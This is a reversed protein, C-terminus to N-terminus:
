IQKRQIFAYKSVMIDKLRGSAINGIPSFSPCLRISGDHQVFISSTDIECTRRIFPVSGNEDNLRFHKYIGMFNETDNLIPYNNKKMEILEGFVHKAKNRQTPKIWLKTKQLQELTQDSNYIPEIPQFYIGDLGLLAVWRVLSPLEEINLGMIVTKVIIKTKAHQRKKEEVLYKLANKTLQLADSRGRILEATKKTDGDLSININSFGKSIINKAVKKDILFGNSTIGTYPLKSVSYDICRKMIDSVLIEGGSINMKVYPGCWQLVDDFFRKWIDFPLATSKDQWARCMICRSNCSLDPTVYISRPKPLFLPQNTKLFLYQKSYNIGHFLAAQITKSDM